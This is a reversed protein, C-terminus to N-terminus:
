VIKSTFGGTSLRQTLMLIDVCCASHNNHDKFYGSMTGTFPDVTHWDARGMILNYAIIKQDEADTSSPTYILVHQM